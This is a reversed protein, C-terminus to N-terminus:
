SRGGRQGAIAGKVYMAPKQIERRTRRGPLRDNAHGATADGRWFFRRLARSAARSRGTDSLFAPDRAHRRLGTRLIRPREPPCAKIPRSFALAPGGAVTSSVARFNAAADADNRPRSCRVSRFLKIRALVVPHDCAREETLWSARSPRTTRVIMVRPVSFRRAIWRRSSSSASTVAPASRSDRASSSTILLAPHGGDTRPGPPGRIVDLIRPDELSRIGPTIGSVSSFGDTTEPRVIV